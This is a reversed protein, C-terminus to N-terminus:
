EAPEPGSTPSPTVRSTLAHGTDPALRSFPLVSSLSILAIILFAWVFQNPLLETESSQTAQLVLAAVAIGLSGSLEQLVASFTAARSLAEPPIDAYIVANISTFQLSRLLGGMFLFVMVIPIPVGALFLLPAIVLAGAVVGNFTLVDRFGFRALIRPALMKMTLAGAGSVFTILGSHFAEMGMGVQLLLPVLFPTAGVGVRFLLGGTVATKFSPIALLRLDILANKYGLAHWVYAALLLAGGVALLAAWVGVAENLGLLSFAALLAALGPGILAFGRWDFRVSGEERTQEIFLLALVVGAMAIPINIWFIWHWGFYTTIFGGVPPGLVPGLLAPMALMAMAGVIESRPVNRLVVLRGVPVMMAGGLGQVVRATVIEALTTSLACCISGIAFVAMALCFVNRAGFRDAIWGSAPIFVALTLLYSTMALKLHVPNIDFDAAMSPIATVLVTADLNEILLGTAIILPVLTVRSAARTYILGM